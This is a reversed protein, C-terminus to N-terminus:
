PLHRSIQFPYHASLLLVEALPLLSLLLVYQLWDAQKAQFSLFPGSQGQGRKVGKLQGNLM